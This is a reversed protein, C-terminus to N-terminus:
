CDVVLLTLPGETDPRLDDVFALDGEHTGLFFCAGNGNREFWFAWEPVEYGMAEIESRTIVHQEIRALKDADNVLRRLGSDGVRDAHARM